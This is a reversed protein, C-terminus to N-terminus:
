IQLAVQEMVFDGVKRFQHLLDLGMIIGGIPVTGTANTGFSDSLLEAKTQSM